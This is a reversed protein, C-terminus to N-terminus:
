IHICVYMCVYMCVKKYWFTPTVQALRLIVKGVPYHLCVFIYMCTHTHSLTHTHTYAHTYMCAHMYVYMCAHMCVYMCVHMCIYMCVYTCIVPANRTCSFRLTARAWRLVLEGVPPLIQRKQWTELCFQFCTVLLHVSHYFKHRDTQRDTQFIQRAHWAPTHTVICLYSVYTFTCACKCM